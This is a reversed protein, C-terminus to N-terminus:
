YTKYDLCYGDEDLKIKDSITCYGYQSYICQREECEHGGHHYVQIAFGFGDAVAQKASSYLTAGHSNSGNDTEPSYLEYVPKGLKKYGIECVTFYGRLERKTKSSAIVGDDVDILYWM